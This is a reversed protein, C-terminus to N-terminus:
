KEKNYFHVIVLIIGIVLAAIGIYLMIDLSAAEEAGFASALIYEGSSRQVSAYITGVLGILSLFIGFGLM